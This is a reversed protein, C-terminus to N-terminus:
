DHMPLSSQNTYKGPSVMERIPRLNVRILELPIMVMQTEFAGQNVSITYKSEFDLDETPDIIM